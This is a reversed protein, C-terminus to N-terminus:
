VTLSGEVHVAFCCSPQDCAMFATGSHVVAVNCCLQQAHGPGTFIDTLQQHVDAEMPKGPIDNAKLLVKAPLLGRQHLRLCFQMADLRSQDHDTERLLLQLSAQVAGAQVLDKCAEDTLTLVLRALWSMANHRSYAEGSETLSVAEAVLIDHWVKGSVKGVEYGSFGPGPKRKTLEMWLPSDDRDEEDRVIEQVELGWSWNRVLSKPTEKTAPSLEHVGQTSEQQVPQGESRQVPQTELQQVPQQQSQQGAVWGAWGAWSGGGQGAQRLGMRQQGSPKVSPQPSAEYMILPHLDAPKGLALEDAPTYPGQRTLWPSPAYSGDNKLVSLTACVPLLAAQLLVTARARECACVVIYAAQTCGDDLADVCTGSSLAAADALTALSIHCIQVSLHPLLLTASLSHWAPISQMLWACIIQALWILTCKICHMVTVLRRLLVMYLLLVFCQWGQLNLYACSILACKNYHLVTVLYLLVTCLLLM